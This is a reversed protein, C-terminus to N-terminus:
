RGHSGASSAWPCPLRPARILFCRDEKWFFETNPLWTLRCSAAIDFHTMLTPATVTTAAPRTTTVAQPGFFPAVSEAFALGRGFAEELSMPPGAGTGPCSVTVPRFIESFSVEVTTRM